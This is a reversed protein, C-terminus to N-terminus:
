GKVRENRKREEESLNGFPEDLSKHAGKKQGESVCEAAYSVIIRPLPQTFTRTKYSLQSFAVNSFM